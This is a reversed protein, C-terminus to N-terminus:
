FFQDNSNNQNDETSYMKKYDQLSGSEGEDTGHSILNNCIFKVM